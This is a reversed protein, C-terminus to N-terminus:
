LFFLLMGQITYTKGASSTGHAFLLCNQGNIFDKVLEHVCENYVHEQSANGGFVKTFKFRSFFVVTILALLCGGAM